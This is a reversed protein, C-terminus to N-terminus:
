ALLYLLSISFSLFRDRSNSGEQEWGEFELHNVGVVQSVYLLWIAKRVLRITEIFIGVLDFDYICGCSTNM